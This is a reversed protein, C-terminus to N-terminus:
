RGRKHGSSNVEMKVWMLGKVEVMVKLKAKIAVQVKVKVQFQIWM